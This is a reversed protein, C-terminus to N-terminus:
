RGDAIRALRLLSHDLDPLLGFAEPGCDPERAPYTVHHAECPIGLSEVLSKFSQLHEIRDDWIRVVDFKHRGILTSIVNAKYSLTRTQSNPALHVEDFDLAASRLLEPIRWRFATAMRGTSLVAWTDPDAIARRALSVTQPIWWDSGPQDPVCPASLTRPDSYWGKPSPYWEPPTPSRFLTNDFDFFCLTKM